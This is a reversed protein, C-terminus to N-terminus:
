WPSLGSVERVQLFVTLWVTILAADPAHSLEGSIGAPRQGGRGAGGGHLATESAPQVSGLTQASGARRSSVSRSSSDPSLCVNSSVYSPSYVRTVHSIRRVQAPVSAPAPTIPYQGTPPPVPAPAAPAVPYQPAVPQPPPVPAPYSPQFGAPPYYPPQPPIGNVAPPQIFGASLCVAILRLVAVCVRKRDCSRTRFCRVAAGISCSGSLLLTEYLICIVFFGLHLFICNMKGNELTSIM